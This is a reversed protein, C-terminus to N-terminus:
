GPRGSKPPPFQNALKVFAHDVNCGIGGLSCVCRYPSGTNCMGWGDNELRYEPRHRWTEPVPHLRWTETM